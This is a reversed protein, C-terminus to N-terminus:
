IVQISLRLGESFSVKGWDVSPSRPLYLSLEAWRGGEKGLRWTGPLQAGPVAPCQLGVIEVPEKELVGCSLVSLPHERLMFAVKPLQERQM